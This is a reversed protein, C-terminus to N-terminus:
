PQTPFRQTAYEPSESGQAARAAAREQMRRYWEESAEKPAFSLYLAVWCFASGLWALLLVLRAASGEVLVPLALLAFGPVAWLVLTLLSRIPQRLTARFGRLWAVVVSRRGSEGLLWAGRLTSLWCVILVVATLVLGVALLVSSRGGAGTTEATRILPELSVWIAALTAATVTM